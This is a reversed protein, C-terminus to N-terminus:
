GGHSGPEGRDRHFRARWVDDESLRTWGHREALLRAVTSKGSGCTGTLILVTAM